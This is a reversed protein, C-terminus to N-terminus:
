RSFGVAPPPFGPLDGSTTAILKHEPFKKELFPILRSAIIEAVAFAGDNSYHWFDYYYASRKPLAAALDILMLGNRRSLERTVQNYRELRKWIVNGNSGQLQVIGLDIGSDLDVVPGCLAPQTVFVPEIGKGLCSEILDHLRQRYSGLYPDQRKLIEEQESSLVEMTPLESFNVSGHSLGYKRAKLIRYINILSLVIESHNGIVLALNQLSYIGPQALLLRDPTRSVDLEIDNLGVLFLAVDPKLRSIYDRVLVNHGFTSHGDFGANNLWVNNFGKSLRRELHDPWTKGDSIYFCETTSGGITLITLYDSFHKPPESGRFGLSNKRHIIKKDLKSITTNDVHYEKFVPLIIRGAEIRTALPNHFHLVIEALLLSVLSACGALAIQKLRKKHWSKM